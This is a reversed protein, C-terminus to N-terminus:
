KGITQKIWDIYNKVRVYVGTGDCNSTGWSVIGYLKWSTESNKQYVFPGGSDGQCADRVQQNKKVVPVGACIMNETIQLKCKDKGKTPVAVQQLKGLDGSLSTGMTKGWGTVIGWSGDSLDDDPLCVINVEKDLTAPRDLQVLALDHNHKEPSTRSKINYKEHTIIKKIEFVQRHKEDKKMKQHVGLMVKWRSKPISFEKFCHAATLIWQPAILAGGCQYYSFSTVSGRLWTQWPWSHPKAERGGVVRGSWTSPKIEPKGCNGYNPSTIRSKEVNECLKGSFGDPCECKIFLYCKGGNHCPKFWHCVSEIDGIVQSLIVLLLLPSSYIFFIM